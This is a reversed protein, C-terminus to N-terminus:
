AREGGVKVRLLKVGRDVEELDARVRELKERETRIFRTYPAIAEGLRHLSRELEREFQTTMGTMVLGIAVSLATSILVPLLLVIPVTRQPNRREAAATSVADFGIYAFFVLGAGRLIGGVGYDGFGEGHPPVFPDWNSATIATM